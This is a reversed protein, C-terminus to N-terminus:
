PDLHLYITLLDEKCLHHCAECLQGLDLHESNLSACPGAKRSESHPQGWRDELSVLHHQRPNSTHSHWAMSQREKNQHQDKM